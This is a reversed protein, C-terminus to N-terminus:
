RLAETRLLFRVEGKAGAPKGIFHDYAQVHAAVAKKTVEAKVLGDLATELGKIMEQTGQIRAAVAGDHLRQAGDRAQEIGTRLQALGASIRALGEGATELGSVEQGELQGGSLLVGLVTRLEALAEQFKTLLGKGDEAFSEVGKRMLTVGEQARALGEAATKLGPVYQGELEGGGALIGLTTKLRDFGAAMEGAKGGFENLVALGEKGKEVREVMTALLRATFGLGDFSKGGERGGATLAALDKEQAALLRQLEKYEATNAVSPYNKALKALTTAIEDQRNKAALARKAQVAVSTAARGLYEESATLAQGLDGLSRVSETVPTLDFRGLETRMGAVVAQHAENLRGLASLGEELEGLGKELEALRGFAAQVGTLDAEALGALCRRMIEQHAENLRALDANGAQIAVIGALLQEQGQFLEETGEALQALGGDLNQLGGELAVLRDMFPVEPLPPVMPFASFYFPELAMGTESALRLTLETEPYPFVLWSLKMTSGVATTTAGPAEIRRFRTTPVDTTVNIALPIVFEELVNVTEGRANKYSIREKGRLENRLTIRVCLEGRAGPVKEAPMERGNLFYAIKVTFPLRRTTRGRYFLDKYGERCDVQWLLGGPVKKPKEPGKPNEVATLDGPDFVTYIGEGYVRLWDVVSLERPRGYPDLLGYVTERDEIAPRGGGLGPGATVVLLLCLSLLLIVIRRRSM